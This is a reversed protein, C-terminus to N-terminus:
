FCLILPIWLFTFQFALASPVPSFINMAEGLCSAVRESGDGGPTGPPVHCTWVRDQARAPGHIWISLLWLSPHLMPPLHAKRVGLSLPMVPSVVITDCYSTTCSHVFHHALRAMQTPFPKPLCGKALPNRNWELDEPFRWSCGPTLLLLLPSRFDLRNSKSSDM